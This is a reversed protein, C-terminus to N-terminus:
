FSCSKSNWSFLNTYLKNRFSSHRHIVREEFYYAIAKKGEEVLKTNSYKVVKWLVRDGDADRGHLQLFPKEYAKKAWEADATWSYIDVEQRWKLTRDIKALIESEKNSWSMFNRLWASDKEMLRIKDAELGQTTWWSQNRLKDQFQEITVGSTFFYSDSFPM